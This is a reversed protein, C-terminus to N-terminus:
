IGEGICKIPRQKDHWDCQERAEELVHGDYDGFFGWCSELLNGDEDEVEYGYVNGRLYHDYEEIEAQIAHELSERSNYEDPNFKAWVWGLQGSDWPCSFGTTNITVGSHDYMYVPLFVLGSREMDERTPPDSAEDDLPRLLRTGDKDDGVIRRRHWYSITGQHEWETRPNPPDEDYFIKIKFGKYEEAYAPEMAVELVDVLPSTFKSHNSEQAPLTAIPTGYPGDNGRM